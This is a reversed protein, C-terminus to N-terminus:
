VQDICPKSEKLRDIIHYRCMAKDSDLVISSRRSSLFERVVISVQRDDAVVSEIIRNVGDINCLIDEILDVQM